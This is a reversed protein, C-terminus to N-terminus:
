YKLHLLLPIETQYSVEKDFMGRYLKGHGPADYLLPVTFRVANCPFFRSGLNVYLKLSSPLRIKYMPEGITCTEIIMVSWNKCVKSEIMVGVGVCFRAFYTGVSGDLWSTVRRPELKSPEKAVGCWRGQSRKLLGDWFM